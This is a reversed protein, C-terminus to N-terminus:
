LPVPSYSEFSMRRVAETLIQFCMSFTSHNSNNAEIQKVENMFHHNVANYYMEYNTPKSKKEPYIMAGLNGYVSSQSLDSILYSDREKRLVNYIADGEKDDSYPFYILYRSPYRDHKLCANVPMGTRYRVWSLICISLDNVYANLNPNIIVKITQVM